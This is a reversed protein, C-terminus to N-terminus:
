KNLVRLNYGISNLEKLLEKYEEKNAQRSEKAYEIHCSSHQGLHSYAVKESNGFFEKNYNLQPFFAFLDNDNEENILFKVLTAM